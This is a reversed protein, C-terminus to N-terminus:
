PWTDLNQKIKSNNAIVQNKFPNDEFKFMIIKLSLEKFLGSLGQRDSM